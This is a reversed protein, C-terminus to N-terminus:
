KMNNVTKSQVLNILQGWYAVNRRFESWCDNEFAWGGLTDLDCANEHIYDYIMKSKMAEVRNKLVDEYPFNAKVDDPSYQHKDKNDAHILYRLSSKYNRAFEIDNAPIRLANAITSIPCPSDRKGVWHIHAKKLEGLQNVDMDHTIYALERFTDDLRVLVASCDYNEADPYLIGIFIRSEKESM